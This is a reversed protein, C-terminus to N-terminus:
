SLKLSKAFEAVKGIREFKADPPTTDAFSLIIHDGNGISDALNCLYRDFQSERMYEELTCISPIGGWITIKGAFEKRIDELRLKTMPYPCISDAIDICGEVYENILGENEGDAHTLFFKGKQRSIASYKKLYPTIYQKFFLPWTLFSDYNAGCFVVDANSSAAINVVKSFFIDIKQALSEFVPPNDHLQYVFSEFPCLSKMIHHMPSASLMCFAVAIGNEGISGKYEAFDKYNDEVSINEFIYGIAEADAATKFAHELTHGITAGSQRMRIDYLTKTTINGHPTKYIAQTVGSSDTKFEFDINDTNITYPNTKLDYIGLGSLAASKKDRYNSFDPVITHFGLGMDTVIEELTCGRYKKPLTDRLKNSKYWIDLRPVFPVHGTRKGKITNIITERFTM